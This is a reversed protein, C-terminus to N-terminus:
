QSIRTNEELANFIFTGKQSKEWAARYASLNLKLDHFQIIVEVKEKYLFENKLGDSLKIQNNSLQAFMFSGCLLFWFLIFGKIKTM